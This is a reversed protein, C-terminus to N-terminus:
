CVTNFSPWLLATLNWGNRQRHRHWLHHKHSQEGKQLCLGADQHIWRVQDQWQTRAKCFQTQIATWTVDWTYRPWVWKQIASLDAGRILVQRVVKPLERKKKTKEDTHWERQWRSGMGNQDNGKWSQSQHFKATFKYDSKKKRSGFLHKM